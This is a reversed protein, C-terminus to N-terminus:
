GAERIQEIPEGDLTTFTSMGGDGSGIRDASVPWVSGSYVTCGLVIRTRNDMDTLPLILREGIGYRGLHRYIQGREYFAAPTRCITQYRDRLTASIEAPYIEDLTKHRIPGPFVALIDEGAVRYVFNRSEDEWRMKWITCLLTGVEAPDFAALNPVSREGRLGNWYDYFRAIRHDRCLPFSM